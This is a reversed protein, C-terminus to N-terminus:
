VKSEIYVWALCSFIGLLLWTSESFASRKGGVRAAAVVAIGCYRCNRGAFQIWNTERRSTKVWFSILTAKLNMFNGSNVVRIAELVPRRGMIQDPDDEFDCIELVLPRLEKLIKIVQGIISDREAVWFWPKQTSNLTTEEPSMWRSWM